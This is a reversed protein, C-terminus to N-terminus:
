GRRNWRPHAGHHRRGIRRRDRRAHHRATQGGGRSRHRRHRHGYISQSVGVGFVGLAVGDIKRAGTAPVGLALGVVRGTPPEYPSWLTLNVGRVERLNRDRFNIRLGTMEPKDGIALGVNNVTLDIVQSAVPARAALVSRDSCRCALRSVYHTRHSNFPAHRDRAGRSAWTREADHDQSM